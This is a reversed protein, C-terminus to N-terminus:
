NLMGSLDAEPDMTGTLTRFWIELCLILWLRTHSERKGSRHDGLETLVRESNIWGEQEAVSDRLLSTLVDGLRGRFWAPLPMAFGMKPRYIVESPVLRAAIRKLIWKSEGWHLKMRDPLRWATELVSVDLLPARVELSAAMSAVDVKTLFDDPLQVQFDDFLLRQVVTAGARDLAGGVRCGVRDHSLAELLNPGAVQRLRDHWSQSNTYGSGPPALSLTNMASLRSGPAGLVRSLAPVVSERISRPVVAGYRSAYLGAQVRWYGAFAEDGGDGSLCVKVHERALQSLLHTPVASADGFPQGFHWVLRPLIRLVDPLRVITEHHVLGLHAAVSRAHPLENFDTEDFGVSFSHLGPHRRAALAAVLSSDVGGSLFVGVPVDADLCRTVSDELVSEVEAEAASVTIRAPREDPFSWYRHLTVGNADIVGYHAPPFV